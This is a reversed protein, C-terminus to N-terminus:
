GNIGLEDYVNSGSSSLERFVWERWEKHAEIDEGAEKKVKDVKVLAPIPTMLGLVVAEGVNLSPLLALLEDSLTESAAQVYRQDQPEVLRLIIKNNTQSLADEDVNKPRQSVLCLGLGFKRGERAVRAVVEKTLTSRNRPILVHAEEIVTLVPVPYGKGCVRFRKRSELLRRLYHSTIVDAVEEGVSGLKIVNAYGPKVVAELDIPAEPSLVIGWYRDRLDYLKLLLDIVSSKDKGSIKVEKVEGGRVERYKGTSLIREVEEILLDFFKELERGCVHKVYSYARRLYLRQKTAGEGLNLLRYYEHITLNAPNVKPTVVRCRRAVGGYESHMDILLVTGGLEDVIGRVLVAVTNSKGAGTIALIALHRSVVANVDVYFPVKPHNALVGLRICSGGRSGFIRRLLDDSARFVRAMPNPPYKPSEVIGENILSDVRSLLRAQGVVYHHREAGFSEAYEVVEPRLYKGTLLPNGIRSSEVIGLVAGGDPYEIVVYEGVSPPKTATFVVSTHSTEGIVRGIVELKSLDVV